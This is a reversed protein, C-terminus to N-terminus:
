LIYRVSLELSPYLLCHSVLQMKRSILDDASFAPFLMESVRFYSIKQPLMGGSEGLSPRRRHQLDEDGRM